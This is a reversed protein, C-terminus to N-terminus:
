PSAERGRMRHLECIQGRLKDHAELPTCGKDICRAFAALLKEGDNDPFCEALYELLGATAAETNM